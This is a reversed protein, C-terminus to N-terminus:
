LTTLASPDWSSRLTVSRKWGNKYIKGASLLRAIDTQPPFLLVAGRAIYPRPKVHAIETVSFAKGKGIRQIEQLLAM